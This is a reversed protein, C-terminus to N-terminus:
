REYHKQRFLSLLIRRLLHIVWFKQLANQFPQRTHICLARFYLVGEALKVFLILLIILVLTAAALYSHIM